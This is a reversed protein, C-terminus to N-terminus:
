KIATQSKTVGTSTSFTNQRPSSDESLLMTHKRRLAKKLDSLATPNFLFCKFSTNEHINLIGSKTNQIEREAIEGSTTTPTGSANPCAGM